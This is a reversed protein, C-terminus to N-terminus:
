DLPFEEMMKLLGQIYGTEHARSRHGGSGYSYGPGWETDNIVRPVHDDILFGTFGVRRLALMAKAPNFNGEGLFCEQFKPVSGQVDRFHVYFIKKLPGFYNIMELVAKEGGMESYCGLCGQLGWADSDAIEMGRKFNEICYFLRATGAVKEVPPDAPHLALKIGSKEAVPIVAKIFYEYNKWMTAEEPISMDVDAGKRYADATELNNGKKVLSKDWSAVEAGGRGPTTLSTRWVHQVMFHFGLIPIGARGMNQLTINYHEIQEDRGPLGAVIKDMFRMPVNEIAELILGYKECRKRLVLLDEYEWHKEGPLTKPAHFQISNIGLQKAFILDEECAEDSQGIAVRMKDKMLMIEGKKLKRFFSRIAKYKVPNTKWFIAKTVM